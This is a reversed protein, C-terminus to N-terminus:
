TAPLAPWGCEQRVAALTKAAGRHRWSRVLRQVVRYEFDLWPRPRWLDPHAQGNRHADEDWRRRMAPDYSKAEAHERVVALPWAVHRARTGPLLRIWLEYDLACHQEEWVPQHRAATWFTAHSLLLGPFKVYRDRAHAAITYDCRGTAQQLHLGDGYVVDACTARWREAVRRFAGPLYLDDSNLWGRLEGSAVSFGLNLAHGQGRDRTSRCFSLWPRYRELIDVSADSSGGDLVVFELSPYNQLLVSRIAEELYAGQQFSPMVVSFLPWEDPSVAFPATQVDWPWGRRAPTSAPLTSLLGDRQWPVRPLPQGAGAAVLERRYDALNPLQQIFTTM